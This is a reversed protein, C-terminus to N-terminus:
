TGDFGSLLRSVGCALTRNESRLRLGWPRHPPARAPPCRRAAAGSRRVGVPASSADRARRGGDADVDAVLVQADGRSELPRSNLFALSAQAARLRGDAQARQRRRRLARRRDRGARHGHRRRRRAQRPHRGRRRPVAFRRHGAARGGRQGPGRGGLERRARPRSLRGRHAAEPRDARAPDRGPLPQPDDPRGHQRRVRGRRRAYTLTLDRMARTLGVYALRREEDINGEEISRSHPFTGDEMGIIFVIPFELGKANHLTMLTVLGEDDRITDADALLAIQQLFEGVSGDANNADYEQTVRVLEELNELRGQAEITREAELADKYGTEELLEQLLQAVPAGGEAREKLRTMTSMFRELSKRAATALGPIDSIAAEWVSIGMAEAHALVRSMSTQGLGRRPSNAIRTFATGDQPNVLFTLYNVADKIEAREYFKTGGIIQYGIGARVMMDELVRSQANTRYFIAIEARSVGEDVLRNVEATVFRAEAHEDAMERVRVPDGEGVDTWLHKTMQGRNNSIVGNAASLITQTSRYNQEM